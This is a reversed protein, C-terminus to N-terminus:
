NFASANIRVAKQDLLMVDETCRDSFLILFDETRDKKKM